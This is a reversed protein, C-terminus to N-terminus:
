SSSRLAAEYVRPFIDTLEKLGMGPKIMPNYLLKLLVFDIATWAEHESEPDLLSDVTEGLPHRLGLIQLLVRYICREFAPAEQGIAAIGGGISADGEIFRRSKCVPDGGATLQDYLDPRGVFVTEFLEAFADDRDRAFDSSVLLLLNVVDDTGASKIDIGTAKGLLGVKELVAATRRNLNERVQNDGLVAVQASGTWKFLQASAATSGESHGITAALFLRRMCDVDAICADAAEDSLLRITEQSRAEDSPAFLGLVSIV